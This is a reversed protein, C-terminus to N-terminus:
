KNTNNNVWGNSIRWRYYQIKVWKGRTLPATSKHYPQGNILYCDRVMPVDRRSYQIELTIAITDQGKATFAFLLAILTYKM